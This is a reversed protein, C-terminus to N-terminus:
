PKLGYLSEMAALITEESPVSLAELKENHPIPIDLGCLRKVPAKLRRFAESECITGVIEGGFGGTKPAEHVVLVKGTKAASLIITEKDLPVLTRIDIIEAEIGRAACSEAAALCPPVMAGWSIVTLDKGERKIDAKGLPITYDDEPVLGTTKYLKKQELFVVPDPDRIASILLGKADSPTSPIVVKLGPVNCIWAEPSQSHQDAAGTGSGSPARLVLPVSSQGGSQYRIKAAQSVLQDMALTLFDSFM